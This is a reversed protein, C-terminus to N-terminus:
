PKAIAWSDIRDRPLRDRPLTESSFLYARTGDCEKRSPRRCTTPTTHSFRSPLPQPNSTHNLGPTGRGPGEQHRGLGRPVERNTEGHWRLGATRVSRRSLPFLIVHIKGLYELATDHTPGCLHRLAASAGATDHKNGFTAPSANFLTSPRLPPHPVFLRHSPLDHARPLEVRPWWRLLSERVLPYHQPVGTTIEGMTVSRIATMIVNNISTHFLIRTDSATLQTKRARFQQRVCSPGAMKERLVKSEPTAQVLALLRAKKRTSFTDFIPRSIARFGIDPHHRGSDVAGKPVAGVM